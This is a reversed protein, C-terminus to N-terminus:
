NNDPLKRKWGDLGEIKEGMTRESTKWIYLSYGELGLAISFIVILIALELQWSMGKGIQSLFNLIHARMLPMVNVAAIFSAFIWFIGFAVIISRTIKSLSFFKDRKGMATKYLNGTLGFELYDIHLEWNEQWSKSGQAIFYWGFNVFLGLLCIGLIIVKTVLSQDGTKIFFGLGAFLTTLFGWFFLSRKWYLDIEFDRYHRAHMLAAEIRDHENKDHNDKSVNRGFIAQFYKKQKESERM